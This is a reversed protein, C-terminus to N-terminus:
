GQRWSQHLLRPTLWHSRALQLAEAPREVVLTDRVPSDEELSQRGELHDPVSLQHGRSERGTGILAPSM